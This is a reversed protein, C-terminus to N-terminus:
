IRTVNFAARGPLQRFAGRLDVNVLKSVEAKLRDVTAQDPAPAHSLLTWRLRTNPMLDFQLLVNPEQRWPSSWAVRDFESSEVIRPLPGGKFTVPWAYGRNLPHTDSRMLTQWVIHLPPSVVTTRSGLVLM